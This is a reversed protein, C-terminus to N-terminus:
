AQTLVEAAERLKNIDEKAQNLLVLGLVNLASAKTMVVGAGQALKVALRASEIPDPAQGLMGEILAQLVQARPRLRQQLSADTNSLKENVVKVFAAANKADKMRRYVNALELKASLLEVECDNEEFVKI